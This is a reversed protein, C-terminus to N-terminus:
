LEFRSLQVNKALHLAQPPVLSYRNFIATKSAKLYFPRGGGVMRQTRFLLHTEREYPISTSLVKTRKTVICAHSPHVSPRVSPVAIPFVANCDICRPLFRRSSSDHHCLSDELIINRQQSVTTYISRFSILYLSQTVHHRYAHVLMQDVHVTLQTSVHILMAVFLNRHIRTRDCCLNRCICALSVTLLTSM